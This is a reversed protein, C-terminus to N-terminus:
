YVRFVPIPMFGILRYKKKAEKNCEENEEKVKVMRPALIHFAKQGKCIHRGVKKWQAFGRADSTDNLLMIIKNSLSWHNSPVNFPPFTAITIVEPINGKAFLDIVKALTTELKKASIKKM